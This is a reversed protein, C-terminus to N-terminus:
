RPTSTKCPKVVHSPTPMEKGDDQSLNSAVDHETEDLSPLASQSCALEDESESSSDLQASLRSM